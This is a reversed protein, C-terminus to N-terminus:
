PCGLASSKDCKLDKIIKEMNDIVQSRCEIQAEGNGSGSVVVGYKPTSAETADYNRFVSYEYGATAFAIRMYDVGPRFYHNAYFGDESGLRASYSMEVPSPKGYRYTIQKHREDM